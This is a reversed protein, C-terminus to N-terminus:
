DSRTHTTCRATTSLRELLTELEHMLREPDAYTTSPSGAAYGVIYRYRIRRAATEERHPGKPPTALTAESRVRATWAAAEGEPLRGACAKVTLASGGDSM